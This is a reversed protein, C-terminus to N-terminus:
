RALTKYLESITLAIESWTHINVYDGSPVVSKRLTDIIADALEVTNPQVIKVNSLKKVREKLAKSVSTIILMKRRALVEDILLPHSEGAHRTPLVVVNSADILAIKDKESIYGVYKIKNKIGLKDALKLCKKLYREDGKGAIILITDPVHKVVIAFAKILLDLGKTPHIRGIYTVIKGKVGYKRKFYNAINPTTLYIDDIGHPLIIAELGYKEKLLKKEYENTVLALDTLKVIRKTIWKQYLYGFIRIIPNYHRRLYDVGIFYTVIPKGLKKAKRCIIYTFLSNQSWGHVIDAKRLVERPFECPITLDPFYLTWAKLRHIHIEDIKEYKPRNSAGYTSVIVHVEHGLKVLEKSINHIAREIGGLVPYFTHYVHVIIM